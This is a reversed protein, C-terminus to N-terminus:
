LSSLLPVAIPHAPVQAVRLVTNEMYYRAPWEATRNVLLHYDAKHPMNCTVWKCYSGYHVCGSHPVM